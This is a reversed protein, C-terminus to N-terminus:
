TNTSGTVVLYPGKQTNIRRDVADRRSVYRMTYTRCCLVEFVLLPASYRHFCLGCSATRAAPHAQRFHLPLLPVVHARM